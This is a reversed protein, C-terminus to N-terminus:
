KKPEKHLLDNPSFDDGPAKKTIDFFHGNRHLTYGVAHWVDARKPDPVFVVRLATKQAATATKAYGAILETVAPAPPAIRMFKGFLSDGETTSASEVFVEDPTGKGQALLGFTDENVDGVIVRQRAFFQPVTEERDSIVFITKAPNALQTPKAPASKNEPKENHLLDIPAFDDPKVRDTGTFFGVSERRTFGVAHWLNKKSADRVFVVPDKEAATELLHFAPGDFTVPALEVSAGYVAARPGPVNFSASGVFVLGAPGKPDYLLKDRVNKPIEAVLVPQRQFFEVFKEHRDSVITIDKAPNMMVFRAPKPTGANDGGPKDTGSAVAVGSPTPREIAPAPGDTKAETTEVSSFPYPKAESVPPAARQPFFMGYGGCAWVTAASAGMLGVAACVAVVLTHLKSKMAKLAELALAEAAPPPSTVLLHVSVAPIADATTSGLAALLGAAPIAVGRRTLRDALLARGRSLRSAVTGESWGLRGAAEARTHGELDCAVVAARYVDPLTSLEQDIVTRLETNEHANAPERGAVDTVLEQTRRRALSDRGRRAVNVAVGYLWNGLLSRPRIADAKRLLVVFVAQFADDADHENRLVRRCVGRVMPGHRRVIAAFADEAVSPFAGTAPRHALFDELLREDTHEGSHPLRSRLRRILSRM